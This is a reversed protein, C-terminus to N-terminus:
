KIIELQNIKQKLELVEQELQEIRIKEEQHALISLAHLSYLNVSDRNEGMLIYDGISEPIEDVILGLTRDYNLRGNYNFDRVKFKSIELLANGQWDKHITKLSRLSSFSGGNFTGSGTSTITGTIKVGVTDMAMIETGNQGVEDTNTIFSLRTSGNVTTSAISKISHYIRSQSSGNWVSTQFVIPYSNKQTSTSSADGIRNVNLSSQYYTNNTNFFIQNAYFDLRNSAQISSWSGLILDYTNYGNYKRTYKLVDSGNNTIKLLNIGAADDNTTLINLASNIYSTGGNSGVGYSAVEGTSYFGIASGDSKQVRITNSIADYIFQASGLNLTGSMTIDTVSSLAGTVNSSGNFSQGWLTRITQLTTSTTANGSLAATITEASFNGSIDRFVITSATNLNTANSNITYATGEGASGTITLGNGSIGVTAAYNGVTNTGLAISNASISTNITFGSTLNSTVTGTVVGTLAFTRSSSLATATAANGSSTIFGAGNTLQNTNNPIPITVATSGNYSLTSYGSFTLANAVSNAAGGVSSSGAYNHTHTLTAADIIGYGALTTPNTGGTVRGKVDVTVSRYTGATVGSNALTLAISTTGSGTADGTVSITQNGTLYNHTHSTITGTLVAEVQAKTISTGAGIDNTFQSLKTPLAISVSNSGDYVASLYGTFTLAYPNYRANTLRSDNTLVFTSGKAFTLVTGAKTVSTIANGIGTTIISTASGGELTTIRSGLDTTTSNITTINGEVGSIRSIADNLNVNILNITYANFTDTLNSDTYTGGLNTSGYVSSISGSGGGSTGIGYASIEGESYFDATSKLKGDVVSLLALVNRQADTLHLNSIVHNGYTTIDVADVIGYGSLTTPKDTLANFTHTHGSLSFSNGLNVTIVTGSKTLSTVANGTGITTISMASGSEVLSVRSHLRNITYANFTETYNADDYVADLGAYGYVTQILGGSSSGGSGIGYASIGKESYFEVDTYLYYPDEVTGTGSLFLHGIAPASSSTISDLITKNAHTHANTYALDWNPVKSTIANLDTQISGLDTQLSSSAITTWMGLSSDFYLVDKDVPTLTDVVDVLQKLETVSGGSGTGIGYASLEGTSYVDGTIQLKGDVVSLLNLADMNAHQHVTTSTNDLSFILNRNEDITINIPSVGSIKLSDTKSIAALTTITGSPLTVFSFANQNVEAGSQIGALKLAQETTLGGGGSSNNYIIITEDKDIVDTTVIDTYLRDVVYQNNKIM